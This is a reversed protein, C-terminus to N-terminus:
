AAARAVRKRERDRVREAERCAEDLDEDHYQHRRAAASSGCPKLQRHSGPRKPVSQANPYLVEGEDYPEPEVGHRLHVWATLSTWSRDDPIAAALVFCLRFRDDPDPLQEALWAGNAEPEDDRVRMALQVAVAALEDPTKM